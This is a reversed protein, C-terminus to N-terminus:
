LRDEKGVALAAVLAAWAKLAAMQMHRTGGAPPVTWGPGSTVYGDADAYRSLLAQERGTQVPSCMKRVLGHLRKWM